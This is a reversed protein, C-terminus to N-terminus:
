NHYLSTSITANTELKDIIVTNKEPTQRLQTLRATPDFGSNKVGIQTEENKSVILSQPIISISSDTEKQPKKSDLTLRNTLKLGNYLIITQTVIKQNPTDIPLKLNISHENLTEQNVQRVLSAIDGTEFGDYYTNINATKQLEPTLTDSQIHSQIINNEDKYIFSSAIAQLKKNQYISANIQYPTKNTLQFTIEQDVKKSYHQNNILWDITSNNNQTEAKLKAKNDQRTIQKM